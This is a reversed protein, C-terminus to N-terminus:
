VGVRQSLINAVLHPASFFPSHDTGLWLANNGSRGLTPRTRVLQHARARCRRLDLTRDHTCVVYTAPKHFWAPNLAVAEFISASSPLLRTALAQAQRRGLDGYLLRAALRTSVMTRGDGTPRALPSPGRRLRRRGQDLAREGPSPCSAALYVLGSVLDHNGAASIVMGGYAHGCLIVDTGITEVVEVVAAVDDAIGPLPYGPDTSPLTLTAAAVRRLSLQSLVPAWCREDHWAGHVLVVTPKSTPM